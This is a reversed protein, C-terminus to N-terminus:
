GAGAAGMLELYARGPSPQGFIATGAVLVNAGRRVCERATGADIGGDVEVARHDGLVKRMRAIKPLTSDIFRQGGWGPNVTMCLGLDVMESAAAVPEAPTAPNLALGALCGAERIADLAYQVHPTAEVHVTIVDAGAAAVDGLLREPREVMLHVDLIGGVGHVLESLASVVMPGFTIPPVFHGDMVDCHIVRAGAALVEEVRDGLCRFDAALISPAVQLDSLVVAAPPAAARTETATMAAVLATM